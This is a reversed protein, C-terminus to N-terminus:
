AGLGIGALPLVKSLLSSGAAVAGTGASASQLSATVLREGALAVQALARGYREDRRGSIREVVNTLLTPFAELPRDLTLGYTLERDHGSPVPRAVAQAPPPGDTAT